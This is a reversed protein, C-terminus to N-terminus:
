WGSEGPIIGRLLFRSISFIGTMMALLYTTMDAGIRAPSGSQGPVAPDPDHRGGEAPGSQLQGQTLRAFHQCEAQPLDSGGGGPDSQGNVAASPGAPNGSEQSYFQHRRALLTDIHRM